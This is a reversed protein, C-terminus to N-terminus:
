RAPCSSDDPEPLEPRRQGTLPLDNVQRATQTIHIDRAIPRCCRRRRRQGRDDRHGRVARAARRRAARRQEVVPRGEPERPRSAPRRSRSPTRRGTASRDALYAGREDTTTTKVVGTESNLVAVKAGALAAGTQDSVNGTISGYLVQATAPRALVVLAALAITLLLRSRRTSADVSRIWGTPSMRMAKRGGQTPRIEGRSQTTQERVCCISKAMRPGNVANTLLRM